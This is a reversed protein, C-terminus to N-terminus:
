EKIIKALDQFIRSEIIYITPKRLQQQGANTQLDRIREYVHLLKCLAKAWAIYDYNLDDM